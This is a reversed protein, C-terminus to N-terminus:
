PGTKSSACETYADRAVPSPCWLSMRAVYADPRFDRAIRLYEVATERSDVVAVTRFYGNRFYISVNEIGAKTARRVEDQAAVLSRDSGMVIAQAAASSTMLQAREVLPANQSITSRIFESANATTETLKRGSNEVSQIETRLEGPPMANKAAALADNSQKLQARLAEITSNAATLADNSEVLSAKWKFGVVSGEEFGASTLVDNLLKPFVLLLVALLFLSSDRLLAFLDKGVSIWREISGKAQVPQDPM